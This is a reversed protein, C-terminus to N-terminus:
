FKCGKFVSNHLIQKGLLTTVVLKHKLPSLERDVNLTFSSSVFSRSSGFYFLVRIPTGFVIMTGSVTNPNAQAEGFTMAFIQTEARM